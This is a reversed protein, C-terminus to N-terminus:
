KLHAALPVKQTRLEQAIVRAIQKAGDREFHTSDTCFFAGVDNSKKFDENSALPCFRKDAYLQLSLANLNLFPVHLEDAVTQAETIFRRNPAPKSGDCQLKAPSSVYIPTAGRQLATKGMLRALELWRESGIHKPCNSDAENIGFQVFLYDGSQMGSKTNTMESWRKTTANNSIVCEGGNLRTASVEEILWTQLTLGGVASNVVTVRDTFLEDFWQGWGSPCGSARTAMTSDGAM